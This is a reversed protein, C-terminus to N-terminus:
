SVSPAAGTKPNNVAMGIRRMARPKTLKPGIAARVLKERHMSPLVKAQHLIHGRLQNYMEIDSPQPTESDAFRKLAVGMTGIAHQAIPDNNNGALSILTDIFTVLEGTKLTHNARNVVATRIYDVMLLDRRVEENPSLPATTRIAELDHMARVFRAKDCGYLSPPQDPDAPLAQRDAHLVMVTDTTTPLVHRKYINAWFARPQKIHFRGWFKNVPTTHAFFTHLTKMVDVLECYNGLLQHAPATLKPTLTHQAIAAIAAGTADTMFGECLHSKDAAVAGKMGIFDIVSMDAPRMADTLHPLAAVMRKVATLRHAAQALRLAKEELTEIRAQPHVAEGRQVWDICAHGLARTAKSFAIATKQRRSSPAPTDPPLIVDAMTGATFQAARYLTDYDGCKEAARTLHEITNIYNRQVREAHATDAMFDNHLRVIAPSLSRLTELLLPLQGYELQTKVSVIITNIERLSLNHVKEYAVPVAPSLARHSRTTTVSHPAASM